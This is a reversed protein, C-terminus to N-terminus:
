FFHYIAILLQDIEILSHSLRAKVAAEIRLVWYIPRLYWISLILSRFPCTFHHKFWWNLLDLTSIESNIKRIFANCESQNAISISWFMESSGYM